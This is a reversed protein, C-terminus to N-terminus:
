TYDDWLVSISIERRPTTFCSSSTPKLSKSFNGMKTLHVLKVLGFAYRIWPYSRSPLVMLCPLNEGLPRDAIPRTVCSNIPCFNKARFRNLRLLYPSLCSRVTNIAPKNEGHEITKELFIRAAMARHFLFGLKLQELHIQHSPMKTGCHSLYMEIPRKNSGFVKLIFADPVQVSAEDLAMPIYLSLM